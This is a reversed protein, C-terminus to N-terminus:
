DTSNTGNNEEKEEVPAAEVVLPGWLEALAPDFAALRYYVKRWAVRYELQKKASYYKRQTGNVEDVMDREFRRIHQDDARDGIENIWSRFASLIERIATVYAELTEGALATIVAPDTEPEKPESGVVEKLRELFQAKTIPIYGTSNRVEITEGYLELITYDSIDYFRSITFRYAPLTLSFHEPISDVNATLHKVVFDQDVYEGREYISPPWVIEPPAAFIDPRALHLMHERNFRDMLHKCQIGAFNYELRREEAMITNMMAQLQEMGSHFPNPATPFAQHFTGGASSFCNSVSSLVSLYKQNEPTM